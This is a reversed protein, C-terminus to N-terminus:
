ARREYGFIKNMCTKCMGSIEHEAHDSQSKFKTFDVKKPCLTCDTRIAAAISMGLHTKGANATNPFSSDLEIVTCGNEIKVNKMM